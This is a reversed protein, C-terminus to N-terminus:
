REMLSDKRISCCKLFNSVRDTQFIIPYNRADTLLSSMNIIGALVRGDFRPAYGNFIVRHLGAHPSSPDQLIIKPSLEHLPTFTSFPARHTAV